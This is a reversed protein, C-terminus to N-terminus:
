GFLIPLFGQARRTRQRTMLCWPVYGFLVVSSADNPPVLVPLLVPAPPGHGVKCRANEHSVNSFSSLDSSVSIGRVLSKVKAVGM